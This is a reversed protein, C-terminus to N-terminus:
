TKQQTLIPLIVLVGLLVTALQMRDETYHCTVGLFAEMNISTWMDMTISVSEAKELDKRSKEKVKKYKKEVM